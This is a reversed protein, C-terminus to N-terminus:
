SRSEVDRAAENRCKITSLSCRNYRALTLGAQNHMQLVFFRWRRQRIEYNYAAIALCLIAVRKRWCHVARLAYRAGGSETSRANGGINKRLVPRGGHFIM